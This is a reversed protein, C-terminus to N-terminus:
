DAALRRRAASLLADAVTATLAPFTPLGAPAPQAALWSLRGGVLVLLDTVLQPDPAGAWGILVEDFRSSSAWSVALVFRDSWAPGLRAQGWDVIVVSGDPRVLLNDERVDWHCLSESPLRAPLDEVAASLSPVRRVAWAPLYREPDPEIEVRWTALHREATAAVSGVDPLSAPPPTLELSQATVAEWVAAADVPDGLDPFRGDVDALLLAVWEGDDYSALLPARYDAPPLVTLVDIEHRFLAVTGENTTSRVAKLFARQGTATRLRVACGPSMGGIQTAASLVSSRLSDEVWARIDPPLDAYPLRATGVARLM